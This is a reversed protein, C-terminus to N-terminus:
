NYCLVDFFDIPYLPPLLHADLNRNAFVNLETNPLSQTAGNGFSGSIIKGLKVFFLLAFKDICLVTFVTEVVAPTAKADAAIIEAECRVLVGAPYAKAVEIDEM